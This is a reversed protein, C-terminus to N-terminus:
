TTLQAFHWVFVMTVVAPRGSSGRETFSRQLLCSAHRSKTLGLARLVRFKQEGHFYPSPDSLLQNAGPMQRCPADISGMAM